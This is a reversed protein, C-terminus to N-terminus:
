LGVGHVCCDGNRSVLVRRCVWCVWGRERSQSGSQRVVRLGMRAAGSARERGSIARCLGSRVFGSVSKRREPRSIYVSNAVRAGNDYNCVGHEEDTCNNACRVAACCLGFHARDISDIRDIARLRTRIRLRTSCHVPRDPDIPRLAAACHVCCTALLRRAPRGPKGKRCGDGFYPDFCVCETTTRNCLGRGNCDAECSGTGYGAWVGGAGCDRIGNHKTQKHARTAHRCGALLRALQDVAQLVHLYREGLQVHRAGASATTHPSAYRAQRTDCACACACALTELNGLTRRPRVTWTGNADCTNSCDRPCSRVDAVAAGTRQAKVRIMSVLGRALGACHGVAAPGILGARAGRAKRLRALGSDSEMRRFTTRLSSYPQQDARIRLLALASFRRHASAPRTSCRGSV